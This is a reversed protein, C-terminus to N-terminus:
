YRSVSMRSTFQALPPFNESHVRNPPDHKKEKPRQNQPRSLNYPPACVRRTPVTRPNMSKSTSPNNISPIFPLIRFLWVCAVLMRGRSCFCDILLATLASTCLRGFLWGVLGWGELSACAYLVGLWGELLASLLGCRACRTTSSSPATTGYACAFTAYVFWNRLTRPISRATDPRKRLANSFFQM